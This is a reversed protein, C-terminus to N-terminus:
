SDLEFKEGLILLKGSILEDILDEDTCKEAGDMMFLHLTQLDVELKLKQADLHTYLLYKQLYIKQSYILDYIYQCM